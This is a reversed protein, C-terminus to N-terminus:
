LDSILIIQSFQIFDKYLEANTPSRINIYVLGSRVVFNIIYNNVIILYQNNNNTKTKDNVTNSYHELQSLVHISYNKGIYVYQHIIFLIKKKLSLLM